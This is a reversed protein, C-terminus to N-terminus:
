VHEIVIGHITDAVDELRDMVKELSDMIREGVLFGELGAHEPATLLEADRRSLNDPDAPRHPENRGDWLAEIGARHIADAEGEIAVVQGCMDILANANTGLERLMPIGRAVLSSASVIRDGMGRMDDSFHGVGFLRITSGTKNMQDISDDMATILEKIAGRDFPTIFSRRTALLVDRTVADAAEEHRVVEPLAGLDGGLVKRLANAGGLVEAAHAEFLVNFQDEKPMLWKLFQM